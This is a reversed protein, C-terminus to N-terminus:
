NKDKKSVKSKLLKPQQLLYQSGQSRRAHEVTYNTEFKDKSIFNFDRIDGFGSNKSEREAINPNNSVIESSMKRGMNHTVITKYSDNHELSSYFNCLEVKAENILIKDDYSLKNEAIDSNTIDHLERILTTTILAIDNKLSSAYSYKLAINM